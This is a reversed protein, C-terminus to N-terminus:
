YCSEPAAKRLRRFGSQTCFRLKLAVAKSFLKPACSQPAACPFLKPACSQPAAKPFLKPSCSQPVTKPYCSQPYSQAVKRVLKSTAKPLLISIKPFTKQIRSETSIKFFLKPPYNHPAIKHSQFCYQHM